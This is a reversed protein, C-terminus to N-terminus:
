PQTLQRLLDLIEGRHDYLCMLLAGVVASFLTNLLQFRRDSRKEAKEEALKKVQEDLQDERDSFYTLGKATPAAFVEGDGAPELKVLGKAALFRLDDGTIGDVGEYIGTFGEDVKRIVKRLDEEYKKVPGGKRKAM